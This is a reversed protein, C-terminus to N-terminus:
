KFLEQMEKKTTEFDFGNGDSYVSIFVKSRKVKIKIGDGHLNIFEYGKYFTFDKKIKTNNKKLEKPIIPILTDGYPFIKKVKYKLKIPKM